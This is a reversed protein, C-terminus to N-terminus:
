ANAMKGQLEVTQGTPLKVTYFYEMTKLEKMVLKGTERSIVEGEEIINEESRQSVVEVAVRDSQMFETYNMDVYETADHFLVPIVHTEMEANTEPHYALALRARKFDVIYKDEDNVVVKRIEIRINGRRKQVKDPTVSLMSKLMSLQETSLNALDIMMPTHQVPKDTDDTNEKVSEQGLRQAIAGVVPPTAVPEAPPTAIPPVPASPQATEPASPQAPAPTTTVEPTTQEAGTNTESM